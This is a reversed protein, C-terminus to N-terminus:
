LADHDRLFDELEEYSMKAVDTEAVAHSITARDRYVEGRNGKLLFMLLQDSRKTIHGVIEGKYYVPEEEGDFARRVAEQELNDLAWVKAADWAEAFNEDERRWRYLTAKNAGVAFASRSVNFSQALYQCFRQKRVTSSRDHGTGPAPEHFFLPLEASPSKQELDLRRRRLNPQKSIRPM